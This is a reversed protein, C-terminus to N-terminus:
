YELKNLVKGNEIELQVIVAVAEFVYQHKRLDHRYFNKLINWQKLIGNLREHRSRDLQNSKKIIKM